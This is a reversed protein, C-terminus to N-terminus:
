MKSLLFLFATHKYIHLATFCPMPLFKKTNVSSFRPTEVRHGWQEGSSFPSCARTHAQLRLGGAASASPDCMWSIGPWFLFSWFLATAVAGQHFVQRFACARLAFGPVSFCVAFSSLPLSRITVDSMLHWLLLSDLLICFCDCLLLNESSLATPAWGARSPLFFAFVLM